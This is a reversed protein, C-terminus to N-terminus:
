DLETGTTILALSHKSVLGLAFRSSALNDAHDARDARAALVLAPRRWTDAAHDLAAARARARAPAARARRRRLRRRRRPRRAGGAGGAAALAAARAPRARRPPPATPTPPTTPARRLALAGARAPAARARARAPAAAAAACDAAAAHDARAALVLALRRWTDAAHDPRCRALAPARQLALAAAATPPPPTTPARSRPRARTCRSRPPPATPPPPTTPARRWCWRRGGGRTPPTTRRRLRRRRAHDARAALALALRRWTDARAPELAAAARLAHEALRLWGLEYYAAGLQVISDLHTPHVALADQFSQRAEAWSGDAAQVLGRTYLVLHSYPTLAAAEAVCGAAASVRDMRLCLDALLLWAHARREARPSRRPASASSAGESLAREARMVGASSARLSAADRISHTDDAHMEDSLADLETYGNHEVDSEEFSNLLSLLEKGTALAAEGGEGHLQLAALAALPWEAAPYHLRALRAAARARAARPGACARAWLAAALRLAGGCEARAALCARTADMADNLMGLYMYQLALYYFALHDNDDLQVARQLLKLSTANAAEKEIRCNTKQAKMQHGIGCYLCARALMNGQQEEEIALAAEALEIGDEIWGMHYCTAAAVLRLPADTPVLPAARRAVALARVGAAWAAGGAAHPPAAGAPGPTPASPAPVAAATALARQRWVHACGFSFKMARELSELVLCLQGWRTAAFALLDVLAPRVELVLCLQGWRTAALALLDVLAPRVELVLCLQGWRTAALALLDVLAPRVELVLCLQGWRTAALALLDVLAPRVELVLCLQGWRTAALALLDVLAPRVELVLCLQGWRTAALALLDVLAPRVELVLCLQGWRTAALALLDVLAPRVELVLCLQGWRTAALALLDVLAPRVELVLCLQGWRTAALALLDVLAPRVELVLCLQGWRTAALALLDVLAPRVELVLCLQGWRTAALALLDVLAPRVELVLCLQGWRTAALALLDVLAPRVELVLCLQGWRTAALALLDVLAPRVELVLCLQGWRTAALALLDVLAPRVELVLCLQGWRTAALALLDVLAPRVELVLCLQGWRTAALALLDVLAPRVELVLCLQGWRTAALALLDVLAPRVELVLCLQGWRTAALALLDVLAPRVELVLCLQGWRTAALALLDVLAPRVELVLCLQGWRTAALALLDVLAPRVELVLCLQGWRTAALALLDVLAPRVELVLCLQGWRTAALALLDVLAPRVELVLCLQGWRTAALALLDVLAPRVELVLCLQGWRTAALALLDVLAVANRLAHARAAEFEASQSLVADRVAMAEGVLLLLVVEEYENCPVFQNIGAYKKPKWPGESVHDERRRSLTGQQPVAVKEPAKYVQGTVGRMLVEALQRALTLRLAQTAPAEVATLMERYRDIAAHLRAARMHLIPARQLATELTAGAGGAGGAGGGAGGAGGARQLYLLTLESAVEFSRIMEAEKEAQKYRSTSAPGANQELCLGKIAYSEAVIRLSRVPLEKETLTNLDVLKYHKLAEDYAGCAYNLKGLLLQADLWVGARKGAEDTALTLYGRADSLERQAREINEKSPPWEALYGELKGEGILFHSLSEHQPSRAKLQQALDVVKKWNSDERNKDIESEYIRVANKSRSTM